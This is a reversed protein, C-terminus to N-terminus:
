NVIISSYGSLKQQWSKFIIMSELAISATWIYETKNTSVEENDIVKHKGRINNGGNEKIRSKGFWFVRQFAELIERLWVRWVM